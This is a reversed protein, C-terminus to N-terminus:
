RRCIDSSEIVKELHEIRRQLDDVRRDNEDLRTHAREVAKKSDALQERVYSLHVGMGKLTGLSSVVGSIVSAVIASAISEANM